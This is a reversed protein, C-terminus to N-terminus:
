ASTVGQASTASATPARTAHADAAAILQEGVARLVDESDPLTVFKTWHKAEGNKEYFGRSIVFFTSEPKGPEVLKKKTVEIYSNDGFKTTQQSVEQFEPM